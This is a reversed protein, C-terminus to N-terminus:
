ASPLDVVIESHDGVRRARDTGGETTPTGSGRPPRLVAQLIPAPASDDIRAARIRVVYFRASVSHNLWSAASVHEDRPEGCIWVGVTAQVSGLRTLLSGLTAESSAGLELLALTRTGSADVFVSAPLGGAVEEDTAQLKTGLVEGLADPNARLWRALPAAGSPWATEAGVYSM